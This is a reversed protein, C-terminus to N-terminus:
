SSRCLLCKLEVSRVTCPALRVTDDVPRAPVFNGQKDQVELGGVSDQFLLTVTGYDSHSGARNGGGEIKAKEISPYNLRRSLCTPDALESRGAM